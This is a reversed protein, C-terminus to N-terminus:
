SIRQTLMFTSLRQTSWLVLHLATAVALETGKLTNHAYESMTPLGRM